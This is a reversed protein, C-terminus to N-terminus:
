GIDKAEFILNDNNWSVDYGLLRLLSDMDAYWQGDINKIIMDFSDEKGNLTYKKAKIYLKLEINDKKITLKDNSYDVEYGFAGVLDIIPAIVFGNEIKLNLLEVEKDNYKMSIIKNEDILNELDSKNESKNEQVKLGVTKFKSLLDEVEEKSYNDKQSSIVIPKGEIISLSKENTDTSFGKTKIAVQYLIDKLQNYSVVGELTTRIGSNYYYPNLGNKTTTYFVYMESDENQDSNIYEEDIEVDVDSNYGDSGGGNNEDVGSFDEFIYDYIGCNIYEKKPLPKEVQEFSLGDKYKTTVLICTNGVKKYTDYYSYFSEDLVETNVDGNNIIVDGSNFINENVIVDPPEVEPAPNYDEKKIPLEESNSNEKENDLIHIYCEYLYKLENTIVTSQNGNNQNYELIGEVFYRDVFVKSEKNKRWGFIIKKSLKSLYGAKTSTNEIEYISKRLEIFLNYTRSESEICYYDSEKYNVAISEFLEISSDLSVINKTNKYENLYTEIKSLIENLSASCGYNDNVTNKYVINNLKSFSDYAFASSINSAVLTTSVITIFLKNNIKM